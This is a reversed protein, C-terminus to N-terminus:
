IYTSYRIKLATIGRDTCSQAVSQVIPTKPNSERLRSPIKRKVADLDATSGVWGGIWHTDPTRERPIFSGPHSDSWESGDLASTM